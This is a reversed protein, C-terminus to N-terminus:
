LVAIIKQVSQISDMQFLSWKFTNNFYNELLFHFFRQFCIEQTKCKPM